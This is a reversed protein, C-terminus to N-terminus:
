PQAQVLRNEGTQRDVDDERECRECLSEDRMERKM